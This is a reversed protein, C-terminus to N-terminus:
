FSLTKIEELSYISQKSNATFNLLEELTLKEKGQILPWDPPPFIWNGYSDKMHSRDSFFSAIYIAADISKFFPLDNNSGDTRKQFTSNLYDNLSAPFELRSDFDYILKINQKFALLIVHYDWWVLEDVKASKQFALPCNRSMNSIILVKKTFSAL